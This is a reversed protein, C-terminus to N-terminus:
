DSVWVEGVDRTKDVAVFLSFIGLTDGGMTRRRKANERCGPRGHTNHRRQDQGDRTSAEQILLSTGYTREM